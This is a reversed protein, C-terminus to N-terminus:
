IEDVPVYHSRTLERGEWQKGGVGQKKHGLFVLRSKNDTTGRPTPKWVRVHVGGMGSHEREQRGEKPFDFSSPVTM